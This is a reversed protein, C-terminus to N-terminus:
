DQSEYTHVALGGDFGPLLSDMVGFMGVALYILISHHM